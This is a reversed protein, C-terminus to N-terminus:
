IPIRGYGIFNNYYKIERLHAGGSSGQDVMMGSGVYIGVHGRFLVLDGPQPTSTRTTWSALASSDRYGTAYGAEKLVMWVFHSCDMGGSISNGGMVYPIGRDVYRKAVAVIDHAPAPPAKTKTTTTPTTKTGSSEISRTVSSSPSLQIAKQAVSTRDTRTTVRPTSTPKSPLEPRAPASTRTTSKTPSTARATTTRTHQPITVAQRANRAAKDLSLNPITPTLIPQPATDIKPDAEAIPQALGLLALPSGISLFSLGLLLAPRTRRRQRVSHKGM